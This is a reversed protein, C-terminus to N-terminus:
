AFPKDTLREEGPPASRSTIREDVFDPETVALRDEPVAGQNSLWYLFLGVVLLVAGILGLEGAYNIGSHLMYICTGTFILPLLPYMPMRFPRELRRDRERLVFLSLSTLLFFVWFIPTTLKLLTEFGSRGAWSLKELGVLTFLQNLTQQGMVTGVGVIMVLSILGQTVLANVPAGSRVNWSGLWGFLRHDAGLTSFVRSGTLISGNIAGLASIMVLLCMAKEGNSGLFLGLVDAAIADSRRADGLGLGYLYAANIALYILTVAVVGLILALPMNRRRDRVEAAVYAADNYGSFALFVLVMAFGFSPPFSSPASEEIQLALDPDTTTAKVTVALDKPVDTLEHSKKGDALPPLKSKEGLAKIEIDRSVRYTREQDAKLALVLEHKGGDV